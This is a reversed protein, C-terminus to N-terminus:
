SFFPKIRLIKFLLKYLSPYKDGPVLRMIYKYVILYLFPYNIEKPPKKALIGRVIKKACRTYTPVLWRYLLPGEEKDRMHGLHVTTVAIKDGWMIRLCRLAMNLYAKSASYALRPDLITPSYASFSSIGVLMGGNALFHKEFARLVNGFGDIQTRNVRSFVEFNVRADRGVDPAVVAANYIVCIPGPLLDACLQDLTPTSNPSAVDLEVHRYRGSASWKKHNSVQTFPTRAMGLVHCGENLLTEVLSAGLGRSSGIVICQM